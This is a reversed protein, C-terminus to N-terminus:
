CHLDLLDGLYRNHKTETEVQLRLILFLHTFYIYIVSDREMANVVSSFKRRHLTWKTIVFTLVDEDDLGTTTSSAGNKIVQVIELMHSCMVCVMVGSTQQM